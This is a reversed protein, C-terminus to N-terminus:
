LLPVPPKGCILRTASKNPLSNRYGVPQPRCPTPAHTEQGHVPPLLSRRRRQSRWQTTPPPCWQPTLNSLHTHSQQHSRPTGTLLSNTSNYNFQRANQSHNQHPHSSWTAPPPLCPVNMQRSLTTQPQLLKARHQATSGFLTDADPSGTATMLAHLVAQWARWSAAAHRQEFSGVGLGGLKLPVRLSRVDRQILQSWFGVVEPDFRKAEVQPVLSMRLVHESAAGVYM